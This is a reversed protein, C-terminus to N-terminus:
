EGGERKEPAAIVVAGILAVTLLVGLALLAAGAQTSMLEVGIQKVTLTPAVDRPADISFDTAMIAGSLVMLVVGATIYGAVARDFTAPVLEDDAERRHRTLL